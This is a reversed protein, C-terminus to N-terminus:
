MNKDKYTESICIIALDPGDFNDLDDIYTAVRTPDAKTATDSFLLNKNNCFNYAASNSLVVRELLEILHNSLDADMFAKVTSSVADSKSM